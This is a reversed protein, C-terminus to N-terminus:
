RGLYARLTPAIERHLLARRLPWPDAGNAADLLRVEGAVRLAMPVGDRYLLRNGALAPLRPGPTVIGMLNLPDAGSVAVLDGDGPRRRVERLAAIAETLAYQEGALGAVFRGGRIEGRAELRRYVGALDHWTPLWDAERELLRRCVVGWRRLLTWAVHEVVEPALRAHRAPGRNAPPPATAARDAPSGGLWVWRGADDIGFPATWRRGGVGWPRRRHSPVLLARLGTFGDATIQGAAVLEGLGEEVQTRLLGTGEVLEAFFAPGRDTLHHAIATAATSLRRDRQDGRGALGQWLRLHRRTVLVIPTARVPGTRRGNTAAPPSLRAWVLRGSHCLTDLWDPRYTTLRAPLIEGEWAAAPAEFGELQEVITAVAKAGEGREAGAVRQWQCLFRLFDAAAVPEIERRLRKLTYRHIRALLRRECWEEETTEAPPPAGASGGYSRGQDRDPDEAGPPNAPLGVGVPPTETAEPTFRGRLIFGEGELTLLATAMEHPEVPLIALLDAATVPGLSELRGRVVEVVAAERSWSEAALEAPPTIPPNLRATPFIARLHPLREAAVWLPAAGGGPDLRAARGAAALADLWGGWGPGAAAEAATLCGLLLLADHVEDASVAEPWAEERVRAIAAPDLRGLDAAAAPDLWRRSVVAQTRREELPADDLFAYPRAHLIEQALPSPESLDRTVVRIEGAAIRGLLRELGDIDMADHLCDDIAQEVLPHDPIERDGVVNELCALQDPFVVAVLDEAAMRQLQAPVRKGGRNRPLALATTADWRWRAQFMPAVLLAQVLLPRVTAQDLYGAVEALPFSHTAGLSLVIADDTAAAQLEFNFRRCFRKRLALGWARNVRSGFPAHVVLQMGGAEDFFRELVVTDLTPLCTLAARAATLYDVLQAAGSETVGVTDTLWRLATERGSTASCGTPAVKTAFGSMDSRSPTQRAHNAPLGAGVSPVTVETSVLRAEVKERLRSVAASLEETRGPAEGFWFPINPPQGAADAVRVKGQEIRLIRYSTNGLQFIDGPLSEIAFDENLTGIFLGDPELVVQYDALDPITGGSTVATLRAGRRGRLRRHVADRHLYAGRRGRRTSFGEALMKVVADFDARALDRYPDARRILAFLEDEDWERCAVEAVIQQALVDLPRTPILLRDLEGRRVADLLAACEALDDRSSPFLRGKPIAGLCHGSRGVRQLLTAIARPSGLQCVLDVAGIDIGLELSATAVLAKLEGAKLRQEAALRQEKALSGHHSTVHEPGIRESLHRAVREAMRRTNVFVLTTRHDAILAALRDYMEEWVEGAMVAELPASPLELALDRERVHGTDIIQCPVGGAVATGCLFRAVADLPRCTASLGIRVTPRGTLTALRELSLALHSGRKSAAVAHIEDVIVARVSSLMQRGSDSTLLIYLSEPTTVCIHPPRRLMQARERQPTDGTRVLTRIGVEPLGRAALEAEIGALPAELNRQIDNSLAKLPSVYVVQTADPLPAEVGHRVLDDIVALFAALTKGSGTPAAILCHQGSQIAPWAAVQAPTPGDFTKGFWGAVAPHFLEVAM